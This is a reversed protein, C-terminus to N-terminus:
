ANLTRPELRAMVSPTEKLLNRVLLEPYRKVRLFTVFLHAPLSHIRSLLGATQMSHSVNILTQKPFTQM